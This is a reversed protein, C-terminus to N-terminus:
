TAHIKRHIETTTCTTKITLTTEQAKRPGKRKEQITKTTSRKGTIKTQDELYNGFQRSDENNLQHRHAEEPLNRQIRMGKDRTEQFPGSKVMELM